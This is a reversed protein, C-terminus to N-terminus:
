TVRQREQLTLGRVAARSLCQLVFADDEPLARRVRMDTLAPVRRSADILKRVKFGSFTWGDDAALMVAAFPSRLQAEIAAWGLQRGECLLRDVLVRSLTRDDE